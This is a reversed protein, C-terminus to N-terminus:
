KMNINVDKPCLNADDISSVVEAQEKLELTYQGDRYTQEPGKLAHRRVFEVVLEPAVKSMELRHGWTVLALPREPSLFNYPTIVHRYLCGKILKKLANVENKNACPHYLM